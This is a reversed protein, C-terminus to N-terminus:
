TPERLLAINFIDQDLVTSVEVVQSTEAFGKDLTQKQLILLFLGPGPLSLM